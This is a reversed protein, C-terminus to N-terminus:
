KVDSRWRGARERCSKIKINNMKEGNKAEENSREEVAELQARDQWSARREISAKLRGMYGHDDLLSDRLHQAVFPVRLPDLRRFFGTDPWSYKDELFPARHAIASTLLVYCWFKEDDDSVTLSRASSRSM